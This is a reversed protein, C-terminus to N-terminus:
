SFSWTYTLGFLVCHTYVEGKLDKFVYPITPLASRSLETPLACHSLETPFPYIKNDTGEM